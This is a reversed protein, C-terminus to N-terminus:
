PPRGSRHLLILALVAAMAAPLLQASWAGGAASGAHSNALDCVAKSYDFSGGADLCADIALWEVIGQGMATAAAFLLAGALVKSPLPTMPVLAAAPSLCPLWRHSVRGDDWASTGGSLAVSLHSQMPGCM